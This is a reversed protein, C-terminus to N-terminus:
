RAFIEHSQYWAELGGGEFTTCSARTFNDGDFRLYCSLEFPKPKSDYRARLVQFKDPSCSEAWAEGKLTQGKVTRTLAYTGNVVAIELAGSYTLGTGAEKGLLEYKGILGPPVEEDFPLRKCYPERAPPAGATCAPLLLLILLRKM